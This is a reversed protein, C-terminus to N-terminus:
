KKAKITTPKKVAKKKPAPKTKTLAAAEAIAAEFASLPKKIKKTSAPPPTYPKMAAIHEPIPEPDPSKFKESSKSAGAILKVPEKVSEPEKPATVEVKAEESKFPGELEIEKKPEEIKKPANFKAILAEAEEGSIDGNSVAQIVKMKSTLTSRDFDPNTATNPPPAQKGPANTRNIDSGFRPGIKKAANKIAESYCLAIGTKIEELQIVKTSGKWDGAAHQEIMVGATGDFSQWVRYVPHFVKLRVCMTVAGFMEQQSKIKVSILGNYVVRLDAEVFGIPVHNYSGDESSRANEPDKNINANFEILQLEEAENLIKM